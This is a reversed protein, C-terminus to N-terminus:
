EIFVIGSRIVSCSFVHSIVELMVSMDRKSNMEPKEWTTNYKQVLFKSPVFAGNSYYFSKWGVAWESSQKLEDALYFACVFFCNVRTELLIENDLVWQRGWKFPSAVFCFDFPAHLYVSWPKRSLKNPRVSQRRKKICIICFLIKRTIFNNKLVTRLTRSHSKFPRKAKWMSIRPNALLPRTPTWPSLLSTRMEQVFENPAQQKQQFIKWNKFSILKKLMQYFYHQIKLIEFLSPAFLYGIFSIKKMPVSICINVVSNSCSLLLFKRPKVISLSEPFSWNRNKKCEKYCM